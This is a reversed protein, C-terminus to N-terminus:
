GLGFGFGLRPWGAAVVSGELEQGVGVSKLWQVLVEVGTNAGDVLIGQKEELGENDTLCDSCWRSEFTGMTVM